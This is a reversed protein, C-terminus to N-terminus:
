KSRWLEVNEKYWEVTRRIGEKWGVLPKYGLEILEKSTEGSVQQPQAKEPPYFKIYGRGCLKIIEKAIDVVKVEEGYINYEKNKQKMALLFANIFDDIYTFSLTKNEDGYIPLEEGRLARTIFETVLRRTLDLGPGYVTSPRVVVYDIGYCEKYAKCLNEGFVKCATYINKEKALVRSSSTFIFKKIDNLRCFELCSYTGEANNKFSLVPNNICQNIKCFSALHIFCDITDDRSLKLFPLNLLNFGNRIDIAFKINYDLSYLKKFLANGIFGKHGTIIINKM